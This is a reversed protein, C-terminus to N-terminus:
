QANNSELNKGPTPPETTPASPRIMLVARPHRGLETTRIWNLTGNLSDIRYTSLRGWEPGSVHLFQGWSDLDFSIPMRETPEHAMATLTGHVSDIRLCAISDHFRNAAYIFNGSPHIRIESCANPGTYDAPLTSITQLPVLTGISRNLSFATISQGFENVVYAFDKSPHFVVHRPGTKMPMSLIPVPSPTLAGSISDFAFQFVQNPKTHPACVFQNSPDCLVSHARPATPIIQRPQADLYGDRDIGHVSICGADYCASLLFRGNRDTSLYTTDGAAAVTHLQALMGTGQDIRYSVLRDPGAISAFLHRGTPDSALVSPRGDTDLAGVRTLRGSFPESKFIVIRHDDALSVYCYDCVTNHRVQPHPLPGDALNTEVVFLAVVAPTIPWLLLAPWLYLSRWNLTLRIVLWAVFPGIILWMTAGAPLPGFWYSCELQGTFLLIFGGLMGEAPIAAGFHRTLFAGALLSGSLATEGGALSGYGGHVLVCCTGLAMVALALPLRVGSRGALRIFLSWQVFVLLTLFVVIVAWWIIAHDSGQRATRVVLYTALLCTIGRLLQVAINQLRGETFSVLLFEISCALAVVGGIWPLRRSVDQPWWGMFPRTMLDSAAFAVFLAIASITAILRSPACKLMAILVASVFGGSMAAILLLYAFEGFSM